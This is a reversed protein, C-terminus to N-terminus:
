LMPGQIVDGVEVVWGAECLLDEVWMLFFHIAFTLFFCLVVAVELLIVMKLGFCLLNYFQVAHMGVMVLLLSIVSQVGSNIMEMGIFCWCTISTCNIIILLGCVFSMITHLLSEM